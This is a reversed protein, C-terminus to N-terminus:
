TVTSVFIVDYCLKLELKLVPLKLISNHTHSVAPCTEQAM